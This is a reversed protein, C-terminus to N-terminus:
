HQSLEGSFAAKAASTLLGPPRPPVLLDTSQPQGMPWRPLFVLIGIWMVVLGLFPLLNKADQASPKLLFGFIVIFAFSGTITIFTRRAWKSLVNRNRHAVYAETFDQPTLEYAIQM